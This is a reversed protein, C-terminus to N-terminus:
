KIVALTITVTISILTVFIGFGWKLTSALTDVSGALSKVQTTTEYVLKSMTEFKDELKVIMNGYRELTEDVQCKRMECLEKNFIDNM